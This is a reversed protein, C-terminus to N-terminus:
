LNVRRNIDPSQIKKDENQGFGRANDQAKTKM